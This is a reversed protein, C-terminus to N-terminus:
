YHHYRLCSCFMNPVKNWASSKKYHVHPDWKGTKERIVNLLASAGGTLVASFCSQLSSPATHSWAPAWVGWGEWPGRPWWCQWSHLTEPCRACNHTRGDRHGVPPRELWAPNATEWDLHATPSLPQLESPFYNRYIWQSLVLRQRLPKRTFDSIPSLHQQFWSTVCFLSIPHHSWSHAGSVTLMVAALVSFSLKLLCNM